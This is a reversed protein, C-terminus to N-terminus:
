EYVDGNDVEDVREFADTLLSMRHDGSSLDVGEMDALDLSDSLIDLMAGTASGTNGASLDKRLREGEEDTRAMAMELAPWPGCIIKGKWDHLYNIYFGRPLRRGEVKKGNKIERAGARKIYTTNEDNRRLGSLEYYLDLEQDNNDSIAMILIESFYSKMSEVGNDPDLWDTLNQTGMILKIDAQRWYRGGQQLINLAEASQKLAASEDVQMIGGSVQLKAAAYQFFVSISLLTDQDDDTYVGDPKQTVQMNDGWEFLITKADRMRKQLASGLQVDSILARWFPSVKIRASVFDRIREDTIPPTTGDKRGFIIDYSTLNRTDEARDQIEAKIKTRSEAADPGADRYMGRAMFICDALVAAVKRRDDLFNIPDAMGPNADLEERSLTITIGGIHDYFEKLTGVPKPNMYISTLGLYHAQAAIMLMQITKGAGPRGSILMGPSGNKRKALNPESFVERFVSWGDTLGYIIGTDGAPKISRFMGSFALVGPMMVNTLEPRKSNGRPVRLVHHPYTPRTSNLAAPQRDILPSLKLGFRALMSTLPHKIQEKKPVVTGVIIETNDLMPLKTDTVSARARQILDILGPDSSGSLRNKKLELLNDAISPARIQGRISVVVVDASPAMTADAFRGVPRVPDVLDTSDLPTVAHFTLEGWRPTIVSLGHMPEQIRTTQLQRPLYYQDDSVGDWATLDMLQEPNETFDLEQFGAIKFARDVAELDSRFASWELLEDDKMLDIYRKITAKLGYAEHFFNGPLLQVGMYGSWSPKTMSDGMRTLFDNFRPPANPDPPVVGPVNKRVQLIHFERRVDARVKDDQDDLMSGFEQFLDVLFRQNLIADNEEPLDDIRVDEPFEFFKYLKGDHGLFLGPAWYTVYPKPDDVVHSDPNWPGHGKPKDRGLLKKIAGM